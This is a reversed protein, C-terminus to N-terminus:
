YFINQRIALVESKCLMCVVPKHWFCFTQFSKDNLAPQLISVSRKWGTQSDTEMLITASCSVKAHHELKEYSYMIMVKAMKNEKRHLVKCMSASDQASLTQVGGELACSKRCTWRHFCCAVTYSSSSWWLWKFRSCCLGGVLVKWADCEQALRCIPTLISQTHTPVPLSPLPAQQFPIHTFMTCM